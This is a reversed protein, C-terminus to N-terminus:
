SLQTLRATLGTQLRITAGENAIPSSAQFYWGQEDSAVTGALWSGLYLLEVQDGAELFIGSLELRNGEQHIIFQGM